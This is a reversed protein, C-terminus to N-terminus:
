QSYKCEPSPDATMRCYLQYTKTVMIHNTNQQYDNNSVALDKGLHIGEQIISFSVINNKPQIKRM